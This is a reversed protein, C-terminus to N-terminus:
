PKSKPMQNKRRISHIFHEVSPYKNKSRDRKKIHFSTKALFPKVSERTIAILKFPITLTNDVFFLTINVQEQYTEIGDEIQSAANLRSRNNSGPSCKPMKSISHKQNTKPDQLGSPGPIPETNSSVTFVKGDRDRCFLYILNRYNTQFDGKKRLLRTGFEGIGLEVNFTCCHARIM